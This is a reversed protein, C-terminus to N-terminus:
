LSCVNRDNDRASVTIVVTDPAETEKVSQSYSQQVFSPMLFNRKINITFVQEDTLRPDGGDLVLVRLQFLIYLCNYWMNTEKDGLCCYNYKEFSLFFSCFKSELKMKINLFEKKKKLDANKINFEAIFAIFQFSFCPCKIM